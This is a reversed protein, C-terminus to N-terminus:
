NSAKLMRFNGSIDKRLEVIQFEKLFLEKTEQALNQNIEVYIKGNPNLKQKAFEIIREYFISTNENPVFLASHPEFGTVNKNMGTKEHEAIYPPNSVIIDFVPLEDFNMKLFDDQLFRIETQHFGANNHATELAKESFDLAFIETEPLYKKLVVPICGSGTGIDIIKLDSNVNESLIWEILEETEPRPILVNENVFFKMGFFETEGLIYQVPRHKKLQILKFLIRNKKEEFDSWEENLALRLISQPKELVKEAIWFFIVDIEDAPYITNLEQYYIDKLESLKM